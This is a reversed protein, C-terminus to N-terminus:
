ILYNYTHERVDKPKGEGSSIIVDIVYVENKEFKHEAVKQEPTEKNIIVDDGDILHKKVRHSLVGELPNTKYIRSIQDIIKTVQSNINGEKVLRIAAEYCNRASIIADAKKGKVKKADANAGVVITHAVQAVYGDIHVGLDRIYKM